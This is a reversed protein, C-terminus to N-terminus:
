LLSNPHCVAIIGPKDESGHMRSLIREAELPLKGKALLQRSACWADEQSHIVPGRKYCSPASNGNIM